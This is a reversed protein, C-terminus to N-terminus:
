CGCDSRPAPSSMSCRVNRRNHTKMPQQARAPNAPQPSSTTLTVVLGDTASASASPLALLSRAVSWAPPSSEVAVEVRRRKAEPQLRRCEAALADATVASTIGPGLDPKGSDLRALQLQEDVLRQLRAAEADMLGLFERRSEPPM